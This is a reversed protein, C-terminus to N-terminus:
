TLRNRPDLIRYLQCRAIALKPDFASAPAAHFSIGWRRVLAATADEATIESRKVRALARAYEARYRPNRSLYGIAIDSYQLADNGTEDVPVRWDKVSPM